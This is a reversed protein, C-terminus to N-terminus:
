ADVEQQLKRVIREHGETAQQETAYRWCSEDHDSQKGDAGFIMTEFILPPGHSAGHNIGLWVTSVECDGVVDHAVRKYDFDAFKEAFAHIDDM